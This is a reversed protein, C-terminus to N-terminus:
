AAKDVWMPSNDNAAPDLDRKLLFSGCNSGLNKKCLANYLFLPTGGITPGQIMAWPNSNPFYGSFGAQGYTLTSPQGLLLGYLQTETAEFTATQEYALLMQAALQSLFTVGTVAGNTVNVNATINFGSGGTLAAAPIYCQGGTSTTCGSSGGAITGATPTGNGDVATLTYTFSSLGTATTTLVDTAVYGSGVAMFKQGPYTADITQSVSISYCAIAQATCGTTTGTIKTNAALPCGGSLNTPCTLIQGTALTGSNGYVSMTTGSISAWIASGNNIRDVDTFVSSKFTSVATVAGNVVTLTAYYGAGTGGTLPVDLIQCSITATTACGGSGGTISGATLPTGDPAVTAVPISVGTLGSATLSLTDTNTYGAVSPLGSGGTVNICYKYPNAALESITGTTSPNYLCDIIRPSTLQPAEEYAIWKTTHGSEAGMNEVIQETNELLSNSYNITANSLTVAQNFTYVGAGGGAPGSIAITPPSSPIGIGSFVTGLVADAYLKGTFSHQGYSTAINSITVSTSSVGGTDATLTGIPVVNIASGASNYNTLTPSTLFVNTHQSPVLQNSAGRLDNDIITFAGAPNGGIWDDVATAISAYGSVLPMFFISQYGGTVAYFFLSGQTYPAGAILTLSGYDVPRNPSANHAVGGANIVNTQYTRTQLTSGASTGVLDNGLYRETQDSKYNAGFYQDALIVSVRSAPAVTLASSIFLSSKYAYTDDNWKTQSQTPDQSGLFSPGYKWAYSYGDYAPNWTEIAYELGMKLNPNMLSTALQVTNAMSGDHTSLYPPICYWWNTNLQNMLAAMVEIPFGDSLGAGSSTGPSFVQWVQLDADWTATLLTNTAMTALGSVWMTASSLNLTQSSTVTYVGSQGTTGSVQSAIVTGPLCGTCFLVQGILINSGSTIVLCRGANGSYSAGAICGGAGGDSISGTFSGGSNQTEATMPYCTGSNLILCPQATTTAAQLYGQVMLGDTLSQGGLTATLQNSSVAIQGAWATPNWIGNLYSFHQPRRRYNFSSTNGFNPLTGSRLWAPHLSALTSLIRPTFGSFGPILNEWYSSWAEVAACPSASNYGPYSSDCPLLKLDSLTTGGAVGTGFSAGSKWGGVVQTSGNVNKINCGTMTFIVKGNHGHLDMESGNITGFSGGSVITPAVNNPPQFKFGPNALTGLDGAWSIEWSYNCYDVPLVPEDIISGAIPMFSVNNPYGYQDLIPPYVFTNLASESGACKFYNTFIDDSCQIGFLEGGSTPTATNGAGGLTTIQAAANCAYFLVIIVGAVLTRTNKM